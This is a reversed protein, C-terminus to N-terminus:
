PWTTPDDLNDAMKLSGLIALVQNRSYGPADAVMHLHGPMMSYHRGDKDAAARYPGAQLPWEYTMPPGWYSTIEFSISRRGDGYAPSSSQYVHGGQSLLSIRNATPVAGPPLTDFRYPQILRVSRDFRVQELLTVAEEPTRTQAEAYARLGPVPEWVFVQCPREPGCADPVTRVTAPVGAVTMRFPAGPKVWTLKLVSNKPYAAAGRLLSVQVSGNVLTASAQEETASSNWSAMGARSALDGIDFHVLGPDTGVLDPRQAAGPADAPPMLALNRVTMEGMGPIPLTTAPAPMAPQPDSARTVVVGTATAAVVAAAAVVATATMRATRRRRGQRAAAGLIAEPDVPPGAQARHQLTEALLLELDTSM